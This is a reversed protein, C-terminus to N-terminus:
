REKNSNNSNELEMLLKLAKGIEDGVVKHLKGHKKFVFEKFLNYIERDVWVSLRVKGM